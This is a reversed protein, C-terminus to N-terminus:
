EEGGPMMATIKGTKKDVEFWNMTANHGQGGGDDVMEYVHVVYKGGEEHDFEIVARNGAPAKEEILKLFKQAEPLAKVRAVAEDPSSVPGSAGPHPAAPPESGGAANPKGDERWAVIVEYESAPPALTLTLQKLDENLEATLPVKDGRAPAAYGKAQHGKLKMLVIRTGNGEMVGQISSGSNQLRIMGGKGEHDREGTMVAWDGAFDALSVQNSSEAPINEETITNAPAPKPKPAKVASAASPEPPQPKFTAMYVVVGAIGMIVMAGVALAVAVSSKSASGGPMAAGQPYMGPGAMPEQGSAGYSAGPQAEQAEIPQGCSPCFRLRRQIPSGCKGCFNAEGAM